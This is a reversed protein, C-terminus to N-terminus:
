GEGKSSATTRVMSPTPSHVVVDTATLVEDLGAGTLTDVGTAPSAPVVDHGLDRLRDVLKSGILGTGGIVVIKM